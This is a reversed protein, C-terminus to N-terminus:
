CHELLRAQLISKSTQRFYLYCLVNQWVKEASYVVSLWGSSLSGFCLCLVCQAQKSSFQLPLWKCDCFLFCRSLVQLVPADTHAHLKFKALHASSVSRQFRLLSVCSHRIPALGRRGWVLEKGEGAIKSATLQLENEEGVRTLTTEKTHRDGFYLKPGKRPQRTKLDLTRCVTASIKSPVSGGLM